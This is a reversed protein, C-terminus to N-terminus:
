KVLGLKKRFFWLAGGVAAAALFWNESQKEGPAAFTLLPKEEPTDALAAQYNKSVAARYSDSPAEFYGNERMFGIATYADGTKLAERVNPKLAIRAADQIGAEDSPYIKFTHIRDVGNLPDHYTFGEGSPATVAGWNHAALGLSNDKWGTGWGTEHRTFAWVFHQEAPSASPLASRIAALARAAPTM